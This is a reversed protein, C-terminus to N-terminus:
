FDSNAYIQGTYQYGYGAATGTLVIHHGHKSTYPLTASVNSASGLTVSMVPSIRKETRFPFRCATAYSAAGPSNFPWFELASTTVVEYYRECLKLELAVPRVEFDTAVTGVEVQVQAISVTKTLQGSTGTRSDYSSGADLWFNILTNSTNEDTGITKGNLSGITFTKTYKAWTTSLTVSQGVGNIQASPSGGSGFIEDFSVGIVPTGTAAKAWFSVTVTKNAITRINEIYQRIICYNAAGAVSTVAVQLYYQASTNGVTPDFLADGSVFSQRTASYTDGNVYLAWRDANYTNSETWTIVPRQWIDFNGNILKNRFSYAPGATTQTSNDPFTLGSSGNVVFTMFNGM